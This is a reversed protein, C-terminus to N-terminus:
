IIKLETQTASHGGKPFLQESPQGYTRKTNQSGYKNNKKIIGNQTQPRYKPESKALEQDKCVQLKKEYEKKVIRFMMIKLSNQVQFSGYWWSM